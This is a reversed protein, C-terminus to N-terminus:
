RSPPATSARTILRPVIVDNRPLSGELIMRAAVLGKDRGMGDVTTLPPVCLAAEPIDNFGTVSLERPVDIGRRRAEAIVAIAQMVSMSLIATAAPAADLLLAAANTEWPDAQLMPVTEIDIGAEALADGYGLYKEQDIEMGTAEVGRAAGPPHYRPPGHVRRFSMIAFDRHGLDLLHRATLCAGLRADVKVSAIGPGGDADVVVFPLRRLRAPETEALQSIRGFILGDVLAAGIGGSGAKDPILVVSAGVEDCAEAVGLLFQHFVPNRLGDAVGWKGPPIIGITNFKGDRLLRGKPDPGFYGLSRAATEVAKRLDARVREPHSFVNSATSRSVGAARAVDVLTAKPTTIMFHIYLLSQISGFKNNVGALLLFLNIKSRYLVTGGTGAGQM